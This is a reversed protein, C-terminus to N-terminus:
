RKYHSAESVPEDINFKEKLFKKVDGNGGMKLYKHGAVIREGIPMESSMITLRLIGMYNETSHDKLDDVSTSFDEISKKVKNAVSIVKIAAAIIVGLASLLAAVKIILDITEIM